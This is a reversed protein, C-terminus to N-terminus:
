GIRTILNVPAGTYAAIVPVPGPGFTRDILSVWAVIKIGRMTVKSHAELTSRATTIVDTVLVAQKGRLFGLKGNEFLYDSYTELRIDENGMHECWLAYLIEGFLTVGGGLKILLEIDSLDLNKELRQLVYASALKLDDESLDEVRYYHHSECRGGIPVPVDHYETIKDFIEKIRNYDVDPLSM